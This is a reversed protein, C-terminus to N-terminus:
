ETSAPNTEGPSDASSATIRSTRSSDPMMARSGANTVECGHGNGDESISPNSARTRRPHVPRVRRRARRRAHNVSSSTRRAPRSSSESSFSGGVPTLRGITSRGTARGGRRTPSAGRRTRDSRAYTRPSRRPSTAGFLCPRSRTPSRSPSRWPRRVSEASPPWNGCGRALARAARYRPSDFEGAARGSAGADYKGTLVGGAMVFSAIVGAESVELAARM